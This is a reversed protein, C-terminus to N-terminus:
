SKHEANDDEAIMQLCRNLSVVADRIDRETDKHGRRGTVLLKKVAHQICPDTVGFMKLVRYVDVSQLHRADKYYHPFEEHPLPM